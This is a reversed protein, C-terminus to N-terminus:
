ARTNNPRCFIRIETDPCVLFLKRITSGWGAVSGNLQLLAATHQNFYNPLCIPQVKEGFELKNDLKFLRNKPFTAVGVELIMIDSKELGDTPSLLTFNPHRFYRKVRHVNEPKYNKNDNTGLIVQYHADPYEADFDDQLERLKGIKDCHAATLLYKQGIITATCRHEVRCDNLKMQLWAMWPWEKIYDVIDGGSILPHLQSHIIPPICTIM